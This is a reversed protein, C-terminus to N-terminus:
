GAAPVEARMALLSDTFNASGKARPGTLLGPDLTVETYIWWARLGAGVDLGFGLQEVARVLGVAALQTANLEASGVRFALSRSTTVSLEQGLYLGDVVLSFRGRRAELTAMAALDLNSLV